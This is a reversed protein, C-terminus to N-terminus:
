RLGRALEVMERVATHLGAFIARAIIAHGINLEELGELAAIPPTNRYDLGHGANVRLGLAKATAIAQKLRHLEMARSAETSNAYAGTHLEVFVAGSKSAAQIQPEDPDIFLSVRSGNSQLVEVARRIEELRGACDLGGETTVEARNEPVLCIDAPRVQLALPLIEPSLGMELNLKTRIHERLRHIDRDQMHRRDERLHATIGTAGAEEAVLAAEVPDPGANPSDPTDRYRAQRLTAVHDINVGLSPM